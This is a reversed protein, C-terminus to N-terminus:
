YENFTPPKVKEVASKLCASRYVLLENKDDRTFPMRNLIHSGMEPYKVKYKPVNCALNTSDASSLPYNGLVRGDLMRLGHIRPKLNNDRLAEFAEQM